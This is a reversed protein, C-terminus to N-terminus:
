SHDLLVCQSFSTSGASFLLRINASKKSSSRRSSTPPMEVSGQPSLRRCLFAVLVKSVSAERHISLRSISPPWECAAPFKEWDYKFPWVGAHAQWSASMAEDDNAVATCRSTAHLLLLLAAMWAMTSEM